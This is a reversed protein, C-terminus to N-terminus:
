ARSGEQFALGRRPRFAGSRFSGSLLLRLLPGMDGREKTLEDAPNEAGPRRHANDLGGASFAQRIGLFHQAALKEATAREARRHTFLSECDGLGAMGPLLDAIPDYFERALAMHALIESSAYVSGGLSIETLKRTFKCTM